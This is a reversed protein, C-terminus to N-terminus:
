RIVHAEEFCQTVLVYLNTTPYRFRGLSATEEILKTIPKSYMCGPSALKSTLAYTPIKAKGQYSEITDVYIVDGYSYFDMLTMKAVRVRFMFRRGAVLKRPIIFSYKYPDEQHMNTFASDRQLVGAMTVAKRAKWESSDDLYEIIAKKHFLKYVGFKGPKPMFGFLEQIDTMENIANCYIFCRVGTRERVINEIEHVFASAVNFTRKESEARILEDMVITNYNSFQNGKWKYYGQLSMVKGALKWQVDDEKGQVKPTRGFFVNDNEVKISVKYKDLLEREFFTAGNNQLVKECASDTLRIWAFFDQNGLVGKNFRKLLFKKASYTKGRGRSGITLYYWYKPGYSCVHTNSYYDKSTFNRNKM